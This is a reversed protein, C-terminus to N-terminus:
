SSSSCPGTTGTGGPFVASAAGSPRPQRCPCLRWSSAVRANFTPGANLRQSLDVVENVGVTESSDEDCNPRIASVSRNFREDGEVFSRCITKKQAENCFTRARRPGSNLKWSVVPELKARAHRLSTPNGGWRMSPRGLKFTQGPHHRERIQIERGGRFGCAAWGPWIFELSGQGAKGFFCDLARM